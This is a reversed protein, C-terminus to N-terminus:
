LCLRERPDTVLIHEIFHKAVPSVHQEYRKNCCLNLNVINRYIDNQDFKPQGGNAQGKQSSSPGAFPSAGTLLEYTLVGLAWNDIKDDYPTQNILEPALYDPTGCFTM